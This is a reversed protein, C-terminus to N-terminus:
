TGTLDRELLRLNKPPIPTPCIMWNDGGGGDSDRAGELWQGDLQVSWIDVPNRRAGIMVFFRADELTACLFIGPWEPAPSGAIGDGNMLRWDLGNRQISQRNSAFTTHYWTGVGRKVLLMTRREGIQIERQIAIAVAHTWDPDTDDAAATTLVDTLPGIADGGPGFAVWDDGADDIQELEINGGTSLVLCNWGAGSAM